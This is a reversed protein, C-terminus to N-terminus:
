QRYFINSTAERATSRYTKSHVSNGKRVCKTINVGADACPVSMVAIVIVVALPALAMAMLSAAKTIATTRTENSNTPNMPKIIASSTTETRRIAEGDGTEEKM